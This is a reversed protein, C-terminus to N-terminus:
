LNKAFRYGTRSYGPAEYFRGADEREFRTTLTVRTVNGRPM